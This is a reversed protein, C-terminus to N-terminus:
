FMEPSKRYSEPHNVTVLLTISARLSKQGNYGVPHNRM